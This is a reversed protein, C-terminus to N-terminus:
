LSELTAQTLSQLQKSHNPYTNDMWDQVQKAIYHLDEKCRSQAKPDERLKDLDIEMARDELFGFNKYIQMDADKLGKQSRTIITEYLSEILQFATELQYNDILSALKEFGLTAKKQILFEYNDIDLFHNKKNQDIIKLSKNLYKTKNLHLFILGTEESLHTYALKYSNYTQNRLKTRSKLARLRHKNLKNPLPLYNEWIKTRLHKQKFFKIVYKGDISEFAYCHNGSALYSFPQDLIEDTLKKELTTLTGVNWDPNFTHYSTIKKVTFGKKRASCISFIITLALISSVNFLILRVRKNFKNAM